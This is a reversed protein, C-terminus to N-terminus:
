RRVFIYNLFVLGFGMLANFWYGRALSDIGSSVLLGILFWSIETHNSYFWYKLKDLM